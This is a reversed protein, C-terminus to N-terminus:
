SRKAFLIADKEYWVVTLIVKAELPLGRSSVKYKSRRVM